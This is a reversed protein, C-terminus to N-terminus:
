LTSVNPVYDHKKLNSKKQSLAELYHFQALILSKTTGIYHLVRADCLQQNKNILTIPENLDFDPLQEQQRPLVLSNYSPDLLVVRNKHNFLEFSLIDQDGINEKHTINQSLTIWNDIFPAQKIFAFFGSNFIPIHTFDLKFHSVDIFHEHTIAIWQDNNLTKFVEDIPARLVCDLDIWLNKDYPAKQCALPKKFWSIRKIARPDLSTTSYLSSPISILDGRQQCFQQGMVSLGFDFFTIPLETHLRLNLYFYPLLYEQGADSGVIIGCTSMPSRKKTNLGANPM